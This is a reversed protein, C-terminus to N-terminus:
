ASPQVCAKPTRCEADIPPMRASPANNATMKRTQGYGLRDVNLVEAIRRWLRNRIEEALDEYRTLTPGQDDDAITTAKRNATKTNIIHTTGAPVFL